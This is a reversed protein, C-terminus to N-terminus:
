KNIDKLQKFNELVINQNDYYSLPKANSISVDLDDIANIEKIHNKEKKSM